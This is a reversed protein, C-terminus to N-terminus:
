RRGRQLAGRIRAIEGALADLDRRLEAADSPRVGVALRVVVAERIMHAVPMGERESITRLAAYTEDGFRVTTTHM